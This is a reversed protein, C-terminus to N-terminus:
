GDRVDTLDCHLSMNRQIFTLNDRDSHKILAHHRDADGIKILKDTVNICHRRAAGREFNRKRL